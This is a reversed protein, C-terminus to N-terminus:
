LQLLNNHNNDNDNDNDDDDGQRWPWRWPKLVQPQLAPAKVSLVVPQKALHRTM